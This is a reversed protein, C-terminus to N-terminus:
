DNRHIQGSELLYSLIFLTCYFFFWQLCIGTWPLVGTAEVAATCVKGFIIHLILKMWMNFVISRLLHNEQNKGGLSSFFEMNKSNLLNGLFLLWWDENNLKPNTESTETRDLKVSSIFTIVFYRIVKQYVEQKNKKWERERAETFPQDVHAPEM